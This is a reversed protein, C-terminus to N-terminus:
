RLVARGSFPPASNLKKIWADASAESSFLTHLAAYIGLLHSFCELAEFDAVDLEKKGLSDINPIEHVGLIQKQDEESLSWKTSIGHFARLAAGALRVYAAKPDPAGLLASQLREQGESSLCIPRPVGPTQGSWSPDMEQLSKKLWPDIPWKLKPKPM